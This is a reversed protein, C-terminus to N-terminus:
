PLSYSVCYARTLRRRVPREEDCCRQMEFVWRPVELLREDEPENAEPAKHTPRITAKTRRLAHAGRELPRADPRSGIALSMSGSDPPKAVTM